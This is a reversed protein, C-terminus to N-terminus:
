ASSPLDRKERVRQRILHKKAIEPVEAKLAKWFESTLPIDEGGSLLGEVLLAEM